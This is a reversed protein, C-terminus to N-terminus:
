IKFSVKLEFISITEEITVYLSGSSIFVFDSQFSLFTLNGCPMLPLNKEEEFETRKKLLSNMEAQSLTKEMVM